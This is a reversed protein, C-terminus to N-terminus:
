LGSHFEPLKRVDIPEPNAANGAPRATSGAPDASTSLALPAALWNRIERWSLPIAIHLRAAFAKM